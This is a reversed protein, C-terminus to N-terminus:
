PKPAAAPKDAKPAPKEVTVSGTVPKETVVVQRVVVTKKGDEAVTGIDLTGNDNKALIEFEKGEGIENYYTAKAM